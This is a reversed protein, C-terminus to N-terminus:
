CVAAAVIYSRRLHSHKHVIHFGLIVLAIVDYAAAVKVVIERARGCLVQVAATVHIEAPCLGEGVMEYGIAYGLAYIILVAFYIGRAAVTIDGVLLAIESDDHVAKDYGIVDISKGDVGIIYDGTLIGAGAAPSNPNVSIIQVTKEVHDYEVTVGIGGFYGALSQTYDGGEEPTRYVSYPDGIVDVYSTILADTVANVDYRDIGDFYNDLFRKATRAAHDLTEPMGTKINYYKGFMQEIWSMKKTDFSPFNWDYLYLTVYEHRLTDNAVTQSVNEM